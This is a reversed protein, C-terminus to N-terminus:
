NLPRFVVTVRREFLIREPTYVRFSYDGFAPFEVDELPVIWRSTGSPTWERVKLAHRHDERGDPRVRVLAFETEELGDGKAIEVFMFIKKFTHPLNPPGLAPFLDYLQVHVTGTDPIHKTGMCPVLALVYARSTDFPTM